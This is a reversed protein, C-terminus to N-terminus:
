RFFKRWADPLPGSIMKEAGAQDLIVFMMESSFCEKDEQHLRVDVHMVRRNERVITARGRVLKGIRVPLSFRSNMTGTFGFRERLAILAWGALEDAVTTVLGGHMVQPAGQHAEEPMFDTLVADGDVRFDLHLGSPHQPGCAFCRNGPGFLTGDLRTTM